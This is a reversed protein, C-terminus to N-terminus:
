QDHRRATRIMTMTLAIISVGALAAGIAMVSRFGAVFSDDIAQRVFQKTALDLDQPISIAALKTSQTEVSRIISAPLKSEVLRRDLAHKFVQVNRNWFRHDRTTWRNPSSRM